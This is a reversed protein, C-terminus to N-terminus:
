VLHGIIKGAAGGIIGSLAAVKIYINSFKKEIRAELATLQKSFELNEVKNSLHVENVAIEKMVETLLDRLEKMESM